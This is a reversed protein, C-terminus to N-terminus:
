LKLYVLLEANTFSHYTSELVSSSFARLCFFQIVVYWETNKIWGASCLCTRLMLFLEESFADSAPHM